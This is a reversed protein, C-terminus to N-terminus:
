ISELADLFGQLPSLSPPLPSLILSCLRPLLFKCLLRVGAQTPKVLRVRKGVDVGVKVGFRIRVMM